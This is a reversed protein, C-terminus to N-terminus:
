HVVDAAMEVKNFAAAMYFLDLVIRVGPYRRKLAMIRRVLEQVVPYFCGSHGERDSQANLNLGAALKSLHHFFRVKATM